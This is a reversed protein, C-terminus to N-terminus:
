RAEARTLIAKYLTTYRPGTATVESQMLDVADLTASAEFQVRALADALGAKVDSEAEPPVRGLTVHPHYARGEAPVGLRARHREFARHLERVPAVERLGLWLVRPRDEAPFVGLGQLAVEVPGRGSALEAVADRADQSEQPSREGLFALTVHLSDAQAWRVGRLAARLPALVDDAIRRRVDAPLNLAVFLRM